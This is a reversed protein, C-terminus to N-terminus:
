RGLYSALSRRQKIIYKDVANDVLGVLAQGGILRLSGVKKLLKSINDNRLPVSRVQVLINEIVGVSRTLPWFGMTKDPRVSVTACCGASLCSAGVSVGAPEGALVDRLILRGRCSRINLRIGIANMSLSM